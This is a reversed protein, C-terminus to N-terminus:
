RPAPLLALTRELNLVPPASPDDAAPVSGARLAAVVEAPALDPRVARVRAAIGAALAASYTTGSRSVSKQEDVLVPIDQGPAWVVEADRSTFRAPRGERDIGAVVLMGRRAESGAFEPPRNPENGAAVVALVGADAVAEFVREFAPGGLPGLTVLLVDPKRVTLDDIARILDSTKAVGGARFLFAASPAVLRVSDVVSHVYSPPIDSSAAAPTADASTVVEYTTGAMVAPDPVGGVIAVTPPRPMDLSVVGLMKRIGTINRERADTGSAIGPERSRAALLRTDIRSIRAQVRERRPDKAPLLALEQQYLVLAKVLEGANEAVGAALHILPQWTSVTAVLDDLSPVLEKYEEPKPTRGATVRRNLAAVRGVTDLLKEFGELDFAGFIAFSKRYKEQMIAYAILRAIRDDSVSEPFDQPGVYINLQRGDGGHAAVKTGDYALSLQLLRDSVVLRHAWSVIGGVEVGGVKLTVDPPQFVELSEESLRIPRSQSQADEVTRVEGLPSPMRAVVEEDVRLANLADEMERRIRALHTALMHPFARALKGDADEKGLINFDAIRDAPLDDLFASRLNRVFWLNAAVLLCGAALYVAVKIALDMM